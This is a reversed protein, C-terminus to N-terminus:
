SSCRVVGDRLLPASGGPSDALENTVYIRPFPGMEVFPAPFTVNIGIVPPGNTYYKIAQTDDFSRLNHCSWAAETWKFALRYTALMKQKEKFEKALWKKFFPASAGCEGRGEAGSRGVEAM